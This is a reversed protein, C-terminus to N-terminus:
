RTLIMYNTSSIEMLIIILIFCLMNQNSFAIYIYHLISLIKINQYIDLNSLNKVILVSM